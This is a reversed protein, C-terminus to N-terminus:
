WCCCCCCCCSSTSSVRNELYGIEFPIQNLIKAWYFISFHCPWVEQEAHSSVRFNHLNIQRTISAAFPMGNRGKPLREAALYLFCWSLAYLMCKFLFMIVRMGFTLRPWREIRRRSTTSDRSIKSSKRHYCTSPPLPAPYNWQHSLLKLKMTIIFYKFHSIRSNWLYCSYAAYTHLM